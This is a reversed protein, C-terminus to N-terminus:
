PKISSKKAELLAWLALVTTHDNAGWSGNPEQAKIIAEVWENKVRNANGSIYLMVIAEIGIDSTPKKNYIITELRPIIIAKTTNYVTTDYKCKRQELINLALVAHTVAYGETYSMDNIDNFFNPPLGYCDCYLAAATIRDIGDMLKVRSEPAKLNDDFFRLFIAENGTASAILNKKQKDVNLNINYTKILHYLTPVMMPMVNDKKQKINSIANNIAKTTDDDNVAFALLPFLFFLFLILPKKTIM